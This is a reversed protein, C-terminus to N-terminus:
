LYANVGISTMRSPAMQTPVDKNRSCATATLAVSAILIVKLPLRFM